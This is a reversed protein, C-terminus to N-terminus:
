FATLACQQDYQKNHIWEVSAVLTIEEPRSDPCSLVQTPVEVNVVPTVDPPRVEHIRFLSHPANSEHILVSSPVDIKHVNCGTVTRDVEVNELARRGQVERVAIMGGQHRPLPRVGPVHVQATFCATVATDSAM